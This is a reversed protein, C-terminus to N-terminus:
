CKTIEYNCEEGCFPCFNLKGILPFDYFEDTEFNYLNKDMGLDIVLFLTEKEKAEVIPFSKNQISKVMADCCYNFNIEYEM